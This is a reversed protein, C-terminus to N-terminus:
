KLVMAKEVKELMKSEYNINYVIWRDPTLKGINPMWNTFIVVNKAKWRILKSKYKTGTLRGDRCAEIQDYIKHDFSERPFNVFLTDGNWGNSLAHEILCALDGNNPIKNICLYKQPFCYELIDTFTTKGCCGYQDYIVEIKRDAAKGANQLDKVLSKGM